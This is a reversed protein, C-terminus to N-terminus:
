EEDDSEEDNFQLPRFSYGEGEYFKSNFEIWNLRMAHLATSVGELAMILFFTFLAWLPVTVIYYMWSVDILYSFLINGLQYHALSVAWIRLYSSIHSILGIAFEIGEIVYHLFLDLSDKAGQIILYIPQSIHFSIVSILFVAVIIRQIIIQGPYIPEEVKFPPTFMSVVISMISQDIATVYKFFILFIMYGIVSYFSLLKPLDQFLMKSKNNKYSSNMFAIVLGLSMHFFGIVVSLKMKLNNSFDSGEKSHHWVPDIGFPYIYGGKRIYKSGSESYQSPFLSLPTSICESYLFGFYISYLGAFLMMYRGNLLMDLIEQKGKMANYRYILFIGILTLILGHGVDGFMSAYLFPFTFISFTAANYEKYSPVGFIDTMDQFSQTIANTKIFTPPTLDRHSVIEYAIRGHSKGIFNIIKDLENLQSKRIWAEGVVSEGSSIKLFNMTKYLKIEREIFYKYTYIKNSIAIAENKIASINNKQVVELQSILSSISLLSKEDKNFRKDLPDIIRAGLSLCIEKARYLSSEGHTFIIFFIKEKGNVTVEKSNIIVNRRMAGILVKNLMMAKERDIIGPIFKVHLKINKMNNKEITELEANSNVGLFAETEELIKHIESLLEMNAKTEKKIENLEMFINYKKELEMYVREIEMEKVNQDGVEIELKELEDMMFLLRSKYKEVYMIQKNFLLDENSIKKNLNTFHIIEENGLDTLVSKLTDKQLYINILEMDESQMTIGCDFFFNIHKM